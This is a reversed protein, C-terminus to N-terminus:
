RSNTTVRLRSLKENKVGLRSLDHCSQWRHASGIIHSVVSLTLLNVHGAAIPEDGDVCLFIGIVVFLDAM